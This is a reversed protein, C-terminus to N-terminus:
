PRRRVKVSKLRKITVDRLYLMVTDYHEASVHNCDLLGLLYGEIIAHYRSVSEKTESTQLKALLGDIQARNENSFWGEQPPSGAAADATETVLFDRM